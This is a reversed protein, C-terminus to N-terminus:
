WWIEVRRHDRRLQCVIRRWPDVGELNRSNLHKELCNLAVDFWSARACINVELLLVHGKCPLLTPASLCESCLDPLDM